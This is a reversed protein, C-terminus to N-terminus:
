RHLDLRPGLPHVAVMAEGREALDDLVHAAPREVVVQTVVNELWQPHLVGVEDTRLLDAGAEGGAVHQAGPAELRDGVAVEGSGARARHVGRRPVHGAVDGGQQVGAGVLVTRHEFGLGQRGHELRMELGIRPQRAHPEPEFGALLAPVLGDALTADHGAEM